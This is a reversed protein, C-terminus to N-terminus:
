RDAHPVRSISRPQAITIARNAEIQRAFEERQRATSAPGILMGYGGSEGVAKVVLKDLNALVYKREKEERAPLNRRQFFRIKMLYYRIM